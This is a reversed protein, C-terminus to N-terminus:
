WNALAAAAHMPNRAMEVAVPGLALWGAVIPDTKPPPKLSAGREAASRLLAFLEQRSARVAAPDTLYREREVFARTGEVPHGTLFASKGSIWWYNQALQPQTPVPISDLEHIARAGDNQALAIEAAVLARST